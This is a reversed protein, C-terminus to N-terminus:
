SEHVTRPFYALTKLIHFTRLVTSSLSQAIIFVAKTIIHIKVATSEPQPPLLKSHNGVPLPPPAKGLGGGGPPLTVSTCASVSIVVKSGYVTLNPVMDEEVVVVVTLTLPSGLLMYVTFPPAGVFVAPVTFFPSTTLTRLVEDLLPGFIEMDVRSRM